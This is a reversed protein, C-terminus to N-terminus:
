CPGVYKGTVNTQTTVGNSSDAGVKVNSSGTMTDATFAYHAKTSIAQGVSCDFSLETTYGNATISPAPCGQTNPLLNALPNANTICITQTVPPQTNEISSSGTSADSSQVHSSQTSVIEWKGEKIAQNAFSTNILILNLVFFIILLLVKNM